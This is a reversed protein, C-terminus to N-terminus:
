RLELLQAACMKGAKGYNFLSADKFVSSQKMNLADKIAKALDEVDEVVSAVDSLHEIEWIEHTLDNAEFGGKQINTKIAVVPKQAVSAFDFIIGSIDSVLVSAREIASSPNKDTDLEIKDKFREIIQTILEKQSVFMQPHPRLLIEFGLELLIELPKAGFRVFMSNAGWTPAVLILNKQIKTADLRMEDYYTLGTKLLLKPKLDRKQELARISKAQHAGSIMVVDFYDFAFKRYLAADTPAHILHVYIQVNKSRKLQLIDLQPTTMVVIKASLHNMIAFAGVGKGIFATRVHTFGASFAPDDESQTYYACPTKTHEFEKLVSAFVNYYHAGESYFLIDESVQRLDKNVKAGFLIAKTRYFFGKISYVATALVGLIFYVLMSGTGPDLYAFAPTILALSAFGASMHRM